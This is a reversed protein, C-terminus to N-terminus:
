ALSVRLIDYFPNVKTVKLEVEQGPELSLGPQSPITTLQM